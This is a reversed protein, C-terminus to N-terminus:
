SILMASPFEVIRPSKYGTCVRVRVECEVAPCVTRRYTRNRGESHSCQMSGLVVSVDACLALVVYHLGKSYVMRGIVGVTGTISMKRSITASVLNPVLIVAIDVLEPRNPRSPTNASSNSGSVM